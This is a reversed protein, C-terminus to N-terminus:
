IPSVIHRIVQPGNDAKTDNATIAYVFDRRLIAVQEGNQTVTVPTNVQILNIDCNDANAAMALIGMLFAEKM